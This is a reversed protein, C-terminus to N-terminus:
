FFFFKNSKNVIHEIEAAFNQTPMLPTCGADGTKEESVCLICWALGRMQNDSTTLKECCM